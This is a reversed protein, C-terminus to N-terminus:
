ANAKTNSSQLHACSDCIASIDDICAFSSEDIMKRYADGYIHKYIASHKNLYANIQVQMCHKTRQASNSTYREWIFEDLTAKEAVAGRYGFAMGFKHEDAIEYVVLDGVKIVGTSRSKFNPPVYSFIPISSQATPLYSKQTNTLSITKGDDNTANM